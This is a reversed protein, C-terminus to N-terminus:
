KFVNSVTKIIESSFDGLITRPTLNFTQSLLFRYGLMVLFINPISSNSINSKYFM